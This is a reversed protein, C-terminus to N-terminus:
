SPGEGRLNQEFTDPHQQQLSDVLTKLIRGTSPDNRITRRVMQFVQKADIYDPRTTRPVGCCCLLYHSDLALKEKYNMQLAEHHGELSHVKESPTIFYHRRNDERVHSVLNIPYHGNGDCSKCVQLLSAKIVQSDVQVLEQNNFQGDGTDPEHKDSCLRDRLAGTTPPIYPAVNTTDIRLGMKNKKNRTEIMPSHLTEHCVLQDESDITSHDDEEANFLEIISARHRSAFKKDSPRPSLFRPRKADHQAVVDMYQDHNSRKRRTINNDM